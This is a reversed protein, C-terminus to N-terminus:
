MVGMQGLTLMLSGAASFLVALILFVIFLTFNNWLLIALVCIITFILGLAYFIILLIVWLEMATKEVEKVKYLTTHSKLISGSFVYPSKALNVGQIQRHKAGLSSSQTIEAIEEHFEIPVEALTIQDAESEEEQFYTTLSTLTSLNKKDLVPNLSLIKEQKKVPSEVTVRPLKSRKQANVWTGGTILLLLVLTIYNKMCHLKFECYLGVIILLAEHTKIANFNLYSWYYRFYTSYNCRDLM